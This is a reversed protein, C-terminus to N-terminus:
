RSAPASVRAEPLLSCSRSTSHGRTEEGAVFYHGAPVAQDWTGCVKLLRKSVGEITRGNVRAASTDFRIRDGPVALVRQIHPSAPKGDAGHVQVTDGKQYSSAASAISAVLFPIVALLHYM